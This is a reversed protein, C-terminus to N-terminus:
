SIVEANALPSKSVVAWTIRTFLLLSVEMRKFWGELPDHAVMDETLRHVVCLQVAKSCQGLLQSPTVKSLIDVLISIDPANVVM